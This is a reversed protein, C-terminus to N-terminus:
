GFTTWKRRPSASCMSRDAAGASFWIGLVLIAAALLALNRKSRFFKM